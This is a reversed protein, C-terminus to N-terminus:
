FCAAVNETSRIQSTSTSFFRFSRAAQGITKCISITNGLNFLDVLSNDVDGDEYKLVMKLLAQILATTHPKLVPLLDDFMISLTNLIAMRLRSDPSQLALVLMQALNDVELLLSPIKPMNRLIISLFMLNAEMTASEDFRKSILPM